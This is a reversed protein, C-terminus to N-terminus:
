LSDDASVQMTSDGDIVPHSGSSLEWIMEPNNESTTTDMESTRGIDPLVPTDQETMDLTSAPPSIRVKKQNPRKAPSRTRGLSSLKTGSGDTDPEEQLPSFPNVTAVGSPSPQFTPIRSGTQKKRPSVWGEQAQDVTNVPSLEAPPRSDDHDPNISSPPDNRDFTHFAATSFLIKVQRQPASDMEGEDKSDLSDSDDSRAKSSIMSLASSVGSDLTRSSLEDLSDCIFDMRAKLNRTTRQSTEYRRKLKKIEDQQSKLMAHIQLLIESQQASTMTSVTSEVDEITDPPLYNSPRAEKGKTSRSTSTSSGKSSKTVEAYSRGSNPSPATKTSPSGRRNRRSGSSRLHGSLSSDATSAESIDPDSDCINVQELISAMKSAYSNDEDPSQLASDSDRGSSTSLTRFEEYTAEAVQLYQPMVIIVTKGDRGGNDVDMAHPIKKLPQNRIFERLSVPGSLGVDLKKDINREGINIVRVRQLWNNQLCYLSRLANTDMGGEYSVFFEKDESNPPFAEQFITNLLGSHELSTEVGLVETQVAESFGAPIRPKM